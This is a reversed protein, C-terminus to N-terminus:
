AGLRSGRATRRDCRLRQSLTWAIREIFDSLLESQLVNGPDSGCRVLYAPKQFALDGHGAGPFRTEDEQFGHIIEKGEIGRSSEGHGLFHRSFDGPM